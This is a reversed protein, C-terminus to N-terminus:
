HTENPGGAVHVSAPVIGSLALALFASTDKGAEYHEVFANRTHQSWPEGGCCSFDPCCEDRVNNHLFQGMQWKKMQMYSTAPGSRVQHLNFDRLSDIRMFKGGCEVDINWPANVLVPVKCAEKTFADMCHEVTDDFFYDVKGFTKLIFDAKSDFLPLVHLSSYNVRHQRLWIDSKVKGNPDFGRNTVFHIDHDDKYLQNILWLGPKPRATTFLDSDTIHKLWEEIPINLYEHTARKNWERWHLVNPDIKAALEGFEPLANVVTDDLDFVFVSM